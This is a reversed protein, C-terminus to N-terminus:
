FALQASVYVGQQKRSATTAPVIVGLDVYALTLSVNKNPAWAIFVDKWDESKLGNGPLGAVKGATELRNRMMRYEAGIAINKSILYAISLEPQLTYRSENGGLTAGHGLLGNQNAKTARLTANVLLGSALFLKTASVYVDVGSRKAGLATLTADLGTTGLTKYQLGLAIQPMLTDSDLIADGALRVKAGVITQKLHLGPSGLAGGTARTDLDQQAISFEYRDDFGVTAGLINLGFDKTGLRSGFVSAGVEGDTANSGIVAWPTLGGGAAGDVSSVGSTLLLKGTDAHANVGFAAVSAAMLLTSVFKTTM